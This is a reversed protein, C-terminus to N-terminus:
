KAAANVFSRLATEIKAIVEDCGIIQHRKALYKPDNYGMWTDGGEDEWILMKQPLDIAATQTCQMLPTGVKPNGFIIVETPRLTLGASKAGETHNIRDFVTMGKDELIAVLRDATDAVSHSSKTTVLGNEAMANSAFFLLLSLVTVQFARM